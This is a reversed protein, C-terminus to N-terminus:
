KRKQARLTLLVGSFEGVLGSERKLDLPRLTGDGSDFVLAQATPDFLFCRTHGRKTLVAATRAPPDQQLGSLLSLWPRLLLGEVAQPVDDTDQLPGAVFVSAYEESPLVPLVDELMPLAETGMSFREEYLKHAVCMCEHVTEVTLSRGLLFQCAVLVSVPTCIRGGYIGVEFQTKYKQM